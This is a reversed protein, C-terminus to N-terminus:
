TGLCRLQFFSSQCLSEPICQFNVDSRIFRTRCACGAVCNCNIVINRIRCTRQCGADCDSYFENDSCQKSYRKDLCTKLPVCQYSDQNRIFGQKCVCGPGVACKSTMNFNQNYCTNQCQSVNSSFVENVPCSQECFIDQGFCQYAFLQLFLTVLWLAM